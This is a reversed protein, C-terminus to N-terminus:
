STPPQIMDKIKEDAYALIIIGILAGFFLEPLLLAIVWKRINLSVKGDKIPKVIKQQTLWAFFLSVIALALPIVLIWRMWIVNIGLLSWLAAGLYFADRSYKAWKLAERQLLVTLTKNWDQNKIKSKEEKVIEYTHLGLSSLSYMKTQPNQQILGKLKRLHFALRGKDTLSLSSLLETFSLERRERLLEIIRVRIPHRLKNFINAVDDANMFRGSNVM